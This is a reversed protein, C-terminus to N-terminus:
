AQANTQRNYDIFYIIVLMQWIFVFYNVQFFRSFFWFCLLLATYALLMFRISNRKAQVKILWWVLPLCFILQWIVFPYNDRISKIAGMHYLFRSWGFGTIPYSTDLAGSPYLYIDQWFSRADWILFPLLIALGVLIGWKSKQWIYKLSDRWAQKQFYLYFFYFPLLPWITQKAMVAIALIVSAWILKQKQLLYTILLIFFLILIDNKGEVLHMIFFPNYGFLTLALLKNEKGPVLKYLLYLAGLFALYYVMRQDYFHFVNQGLWYIPASLIPYTPLYVYHYLAPTGQYAEGLFYSVEGQNWQAFISDSFDETYFNRGSLLKKTALETQLAGDHIYLYSDEGSLNNLLMAIGGGTVFIICFLVISLKYYFFDRGKLHEKIELIIYVFFLVFFIVMYFTKFYELGFFNYAGILEYSFMFLIIPTLNIWHKRDM